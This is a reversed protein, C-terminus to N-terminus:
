AKIGDKFYAQFNALFYEKRKVLDEKEREKALIAEDMRQVTGNSDFNIYDDVQPVMECGEAKANYYFFSLKAGSYDSDLIALVITPLQQFDEFGVIVGPYVKMTGGYEPKLLKVRDGVKMNSHVIKAHRMDVEMKVGNIEVIRKTNEEM